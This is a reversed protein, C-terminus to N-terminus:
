GRRQAEALRPLMEVEAFRQLRREIMEAAGIQAGRADVMVSLTVGGGGRVGLSGDAGRALPLIAEPGAEGMLGIRNGAMPFTTPGSVVGGRAFPVLRGGAFVNGKASPVLGDSGFGSGGLSLEGLAGGLPGAGFLGQISLNLLQLGVNKLADGFSDAQQIANTFANGITEVARAQDEAARAAGREAQELAEQAERQRVLAVEASGLLDGLERIAAIQEQTASTGAKQAAIALEQEARQAAYAAGLQARVTDSTALALQGRELAANIQGELGSVIRAAEAEFGAGASRGGGGRRRTKAAPREPAAVTIAGPQQQNYLDALQQQTPASQGSQDGFPSVGTLGGPVQGQTVQLASSINEAAAAVKDLISLWAESAGTAKDLDLLLGTMAASLRNQARELSAPLKDFQDGIEGSQKLIAAFVDDSFVRGDNVMERLAGLSGGALEQALARAVLPTGEIISNFEEARLVGGALGQSLQRLAGATEAASSGGIAGLQLLSRTFKLVEADSAGIGETALRFQTALSGVDDVTAGVERAVDFVGKVIMGAREASGTLAEFRGTLQRLDDGARVAGRLAAGVATLAAAIAVARTPINVGFREGIRDLRADLDQAQRKMGASSQRLRAEAKQLGSNFKAITAELRVQLAAVEEAM